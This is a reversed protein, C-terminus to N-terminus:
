SENEEFRYEWAHLAQLQSKVDQPTNAIPVHLHRKGKHDYYTICTVGHKNVDCSELRDAEVMLHTGDPNNLTLVKPPDAM